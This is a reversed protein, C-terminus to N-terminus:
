NDDDDKAIAVPQKVKKRALYRARADSLSQGTTHKVLKAPDAVTKDKAPKEAKQEKNEV